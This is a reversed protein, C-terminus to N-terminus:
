WVLGNLKGEIRVVVRRSGQLREPQRLRAGLAHWRETHKPVLHQIRDRRGSRVRQSIELSHLAHTWRLDLLEPGLDHLDARTM